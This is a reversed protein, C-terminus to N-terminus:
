HTIYGQLAAFTLEFFLSPLISYDEAQGLRMPLVPLADKEAKELGEGEIDTSSLSDPSQFSIGRLREALIDYEDMEQRQQPNPSRFSMRRMHDTLDEVADDVFDENQDATNMDDTALEAMATYGEPM